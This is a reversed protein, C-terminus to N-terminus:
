APQGRTILQGFGMAASLASADGANIAELQALESEKKKLRAEIRAFEVESVRFVGSQKEAGTDLQADISARLKSVEARVRALKEAFTEAGNADPM